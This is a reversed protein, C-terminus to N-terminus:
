DTTAPVSLYQVRPQEIQVARNMSDKYVIKEKYDVRIVNQAQQQQNWVIGENKVTSINRDFSAPIFNGKSPLNEAMQSSRDAGAQKGSPITLACFAGFIAVAAAAQWVAFPKKPSVLQPGSIPFLVIKENVAFPTASVYTVLQALYDPSLATPHTERLFEEFRIEEASLTTLSDDAAAELRAFFDDDLSAAKLQRLEAEISASDPTM